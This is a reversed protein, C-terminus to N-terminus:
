CYVHRLSAVIAAVLLIVGFCGVRLPAPIRQQQCLADVADKSEKLSVGTQERYLRIAEIKEGRGVLNLVQRELENSADTRAPREPVLGDGISEVAEKAQALGTGTEERYLKVAEIKKGEQLLRRITEHFAENM